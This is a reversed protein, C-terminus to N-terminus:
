TLTLHERGPRSRRRPRRPAPIADLPGAAQVADRDRVGRVARGSLDEGFTTLESITGPERRVSVKTGSRCCAGSAATATTASSTGGERRRSRREAISTAAPSRARAPTTAYVYVPERAGAPDLEESAQVASARTVVVRLEVLGGLQAAAPLRGGGLARASTASGCTAPRATSRSGGRTACGTARRDGARAPSAVPRDAADQRAAPRPEPRPEGPRRRLRRRGHGLVPERRARVRAARRQPEPVAPRRVPAAPAARSAAGTRKARYEVVRTDGERDTYDVYFRHNKAYGPNFALSLLGQESGDSGVKPEPRPVDSVASAAASSSSGAPKEVVYLNGPEGPAAAIAVPADLGSAIPAWTTRTARDKAAALGGIGATLALVLVVMVGRRVLALYGAAAAVPTLCDGGTRDCEPHQRRACQEQRGHRAGPVPQPETVVGLPRARGRARRPDGPPVDARQRTQLNREFPHGVRRRGVDPAGEDAAGPM